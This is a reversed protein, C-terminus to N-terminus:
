FLCYPIIKDLSINDLYIFFISGATDIIAIVNGERNAKIKIISNKHVKLAKILKFNNQELGLFRVIGDSFGVVIM